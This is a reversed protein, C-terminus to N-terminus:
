GVGAPEDVFGLEIDDHGIREEAVEATVQAVLALDTDEKAVFELGDQVLGLDSPDPHVMDGLRLALFAIFWEGCHFQGM